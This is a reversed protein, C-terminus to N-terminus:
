ISSLVYAHACILFIIVAVNIYKNAAFCEAAPVIFGREFFNCHSSVVGSDFYSFWLWLITIKEYINKKNNNNNNSILPLCVACPVCNYM